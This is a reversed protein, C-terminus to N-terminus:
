SSPHATRDSIASVNTPARWCRCRVATARNQQLNAVRQPFSPLLLTRAAAPAPPRAKEAVSAPQYGPGRQREERSPEDAPPPQEGHRTAHFHLLMEVSKHSASAPVAARVAGLEKEITGQEIQLHQRQRRLVETRAARQEALERMRALRTERLQDASGAAGARLALAEAPTQPAAVGIVRAARESAGAKAELEATRQLARGCARKLPNQPRSTAYRFMSANLSRELRRKAGSPDACVNLMNFV